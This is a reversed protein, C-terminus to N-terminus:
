GGWDNGTVNGTVNVVMVGVVMMMPGAGQRTRHGRHYWGWGGRDVSGVAFNRGATDFDDFRRWGLLM